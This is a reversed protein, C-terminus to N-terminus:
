SLDTGLRKERVIVVLIAILAATACVTMIASVPLEGWRPDLMSGALGSLIAGGGMMIAGGLGSATGALHPRVSMLGTTANPMTMGNGLGMLTTLGFFIVASNMGLLTIILSLSLTVFTIISGWLAMANIGFRVTYRGSCYNGAAYGLAPIGLAIGAQVSSLDFVTDAVFSASGLLAFYAGSTFASSAVYGWFRISTLLEPYTRIQEKFSLGQGQVTEGLDKYALAFVALALVALAMFSAQWNYLEDLVGGIVPGIMPVIAMGMIVYGLKSAAEDRPYIDRVVARSLAMASVVSAQVIRCALFAVVNTTFIAAITAAIFILMGGLILPRRGYRDSLPGIIFQLIATAAFYGSVSFQLVAYDTDFYETMGALSPLFISNNLASVGTLLILTILAPPTTRDLFRITPSSNM